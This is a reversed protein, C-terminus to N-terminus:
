NKRLKGELLSSIEEMRTTWSFKKAIAIRKENAQSNEQLAKEICQIFAEATDAQYYYERFERLSALATSVVPRGSALYEFFKMPFMNRTYENLKNPLLCVDFGKLYNPLTDYPRGGLIHINPLEQLRSIEVAKEGEGVAGILVISWAPRALAIANLLGFDIKYNSVAGIFGLVPRAISALDAPVALNPDQSKIIHEVDAVNPLYHINKALPKKANFLEPSTVLTLDAAALLEKELELIVKGPILPNAAIEDVCHYVVLKEGIQGKLHVASPAYCWLIPTELKLKKVLKQLTNKLLWQNLSRVISFKYFPLLLPSYTYLNDNRKIPGQLFRRLRRALRFIDKKQWVPQRLGLSEIYLVKNQRSFRSMIHQQNVWYPNDWDASSLCIFHENKIM